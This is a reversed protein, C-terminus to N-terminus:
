MTAEILHLKDDTFLPIASGSIKRGDVAVRSIGKEVHRPNQVVFRYWSGRFRRTIEYGNWESPICPQLVLGDFTPRVGLIFEVGCLFMWPATGTLWSHGGKGYEVHAPGTTYEPYVYPEVAFRDQDQSLVAPLTKYYTRYAINGRGLITNAQIAWAVPHNFISSNEKKGPAERTAAGISADSVTYPPSCIVPGYDTELRELVADMVQIGRAGEALGGIVAWPQPELYIQGQASRSSGETRGDDRTFRWYYGGDWCVRNFAGKLRRYIRRYEDAKGHYGDSHELIEIMYKLAAALQAAVMSSEGKGNRGCENLDDNWDGGLILPIDRPSRDRWVKEIGRFCHELITGHGGEAYSPNERIRELLTEQFSSVFAGANAANRPDAYGEVEELVGFDGTERIYYSVALPLWLPDDSHNTFIGTNQVRFYNHYTYGNPFMQRAIERIVDKAATADFM